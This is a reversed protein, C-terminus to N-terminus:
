RSKGAERAENREATGRGFPTKNQPMTSRQLHWCKEPQDNMNVTMTLVMKSYYNATVERLIRVFPCSQNM